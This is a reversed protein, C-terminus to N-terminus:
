ECSCCLVIPERVFMHFPRIWTTIIEKRSFRDTKFDTPGYIHKQGEQERRRKAERDLLVDSRTEPVIIFHLIQVFGGFILQVWCIWERWTLSKRAPGRHSLEGHSTSRSPRASSPDLSM